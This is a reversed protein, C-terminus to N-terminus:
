PGIASARMAALGVRYAAGTGIACLPRCACWHLPSAIVRPLDIEGREKFWVGGYAGAREAFSPLKHMTAFRTDSSRSNNNRYRYARASGCTPARYRMGRKRISMTQAAPSKNDPSHAPSLRGGSSSPYRRKSNTLPRM